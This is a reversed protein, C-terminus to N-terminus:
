ILPGSGANSHRRVTPRFALYIGFVALVIHLFAALGVVSHKVNNGWVSLFDWKHLYGFIWGEFRDADDVRAALAGDLPDIFLATNATDPYLGKFVPLRKFVFGYDHDFRQQIVPSSGQALGLQAAYFDLRERAYRLPTDDAMPQGSASLYHLSNMMGFQNGQVRWVPEDDLMILSLQHLSEGALLWDPNPATALDSVSFEAVLDAPYPTAREKHLLHLAGSSAFSLTALALGLGAWGHVRRLTGPHRKRAVFLGLGMLTAALISALLLLMLLPRLPGAAELWGFRHLTMFFGSFWAKRQDVLTGLRDHYPDLYLRLQNDRQTDVRAVPLLRNIFAYENSFQTQLGAFRLREDTGLYHRALAETHAALLDVEHGSRAHWYRPHSDGDVRAQYYPEGALQMLRLGNVREIGSGALVSAPALLNDMPLALQPPTMAAPRPQLFSMLPHLMGSSAWSFIGLCALLALRRHWPMLRVLRQRWTSARTTTVAAKSM